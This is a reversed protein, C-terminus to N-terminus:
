EKPAGTLRRAFTVKAENETYFSPVRGCEQYGARTYFGRARALAPSDSTEIILLRGGASVVKEEVYKLLAQGTGAGHNDPDVGIWWLNWVEDAHDDPAFYCWGIASENKTPHYSAAQHGEPLSGDALGDLVGGLLSEAEETSFLKTRIALRLLLNRDQPTVPEIHM